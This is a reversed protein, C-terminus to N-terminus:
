GPLVIKGLRAALQEAAERMLELALDGSSAVCELRALVTGQVPLFAEVHALGSDNRQYWITVRDTPRAHNDVM